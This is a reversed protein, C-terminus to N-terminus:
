PTPFCERQLTQHGMQPGKLGRESCREWDREQETGGVWVTASECVEQVVEQLSSSGFFSGYGWSPRDTGLWVQFTLGADTDAFLRFAM